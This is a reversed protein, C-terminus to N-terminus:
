LRGKLAARWIRRATEEKALLPFDLQGGQRDLLIVRNTDVAFGSDPATIDNIVIFDLNKRELKERGHELLNTSEAAFGILLPPIARQNKIEGLKHLIDRNPELELAAKEGTKKIKDASFVAPRYDSVAAAKVIIDATDFRSLVERYMEAGTRVKICEVGAPPILQAPGSILIVKAGLERATAAMAYGMKGSSGNSLFRVPDLPEETPGATVIVTKGALDQPSLAAIVAERVHAWEPLRGPGEEDCAMMGSEPDLVRYGFKKLKEINEQTAAHQYMKSNMAPCVVIKAESALVIASLLDDALGHALRAITQATAPAVLILDSERALRIHPIKEEDQSDFMSGYVRNGTLAAFTLPTVFKAAARTMVVKVEAEERRLSRVWDCVKYAAISGTIGCLINRNEFIGTM